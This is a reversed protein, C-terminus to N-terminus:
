AAPPEPNEAPPTTHQILKVQNERQSDREMQQMKMQAILMDYKKGLEIQGEKAQDKMQQLQMNMQQTQQANQQAGQITQQNIAQKAAEQQARNKKVKYAIMQQAQKFNYTDTILMMDSTDLLGNMRDQQSEQVLFQRQQDTMTERVIIGYDKLPLGEGAKMFQITNGNIAKAYGEYTGKIKISQQVRVIM